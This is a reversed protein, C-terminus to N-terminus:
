AVRQTGVNTSMIGSFVPDDLGFVSQGAAMMNPNIVNAQSLTSNSAIPM